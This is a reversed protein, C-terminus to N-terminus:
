EFGHLHFEQFFPGSTSGALLFVWIHPFSVLHHSSSTCSRSNCTMEQLPTVLKRQIPKYTCSALHSGTKTSFQEIATSLPDGCCMFYYSSLCANSKCIQKSAPMVCASEALLKKATRDVTKKFNKGSAQIPKKISKHITHVTCLFWPGSRTRCFCFSLQLRIVNGLLLFHVRDFRAIRSKTNIAEYRKASKM